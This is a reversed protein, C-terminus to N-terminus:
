KESKKLIAICSAIVCYKSNLQHAIAVCVRSSISKKGEPREYCPRIHSLISSMANRYSDFCFM